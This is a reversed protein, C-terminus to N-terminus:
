MTTPSAWSPWRASSAPVATLLYSIVEPVKLKKGLFLLPFSASLIIAVDVVLSGGHM